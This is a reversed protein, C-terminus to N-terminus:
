KTEEEEKQIELPAGTAPPAVAAAPPAVDFLELPIYGALCETLEDDPMSITPGFKRTPLFIPQPFKPSSRNPLHIALKNCM